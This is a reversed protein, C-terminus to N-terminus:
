PFLLPIQRRGMSEAVPAVRERVFMALESATIVHDNTYDAAGGLGELLALAFPSHAGSGEGRDDALMDLALQDASASTLVQWAPSEIYHDYRERYIKTAELEVDRLSSWRFTGAFCCDLIILVHRVPLRALLRNVVHMPLFGD